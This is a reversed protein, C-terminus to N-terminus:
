KNLELMSKSTITIFQLNDHTFNIKPIMTIRFIYCLGSFM